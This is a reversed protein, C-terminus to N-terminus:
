DIAFAAPPALPRGVRAELELLAAKLPRGAGLSFGGLRGDSRLVRHCPILLPIPNRALATGVTRVARPAGIRAAVWAYSRTAGCPIAATAILVRQQFPPLGSLDIPVTFAVRRGELYEAIEIRARDIVQRASTDSPRHQPGTRIATVGRPTADIVLEDLLRELSRALAGTYRM